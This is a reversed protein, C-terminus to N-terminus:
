SGREHCKRGSHSATEGVFNYLVQQIWINGWTLMISDIAGKVVTEIDYGRRTHYLSGRPIVFM